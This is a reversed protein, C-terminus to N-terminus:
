LVWNKRGPVSALSRALQELGQLTLEGRQNGKLEAISAGGADRAGSMAMLAQQMDEGAQDQRTPSAINASAPAKAKKDPAVRLLSADATFSQLLELKSGLCFIAVPAGPQMNEVFSVIQKHIVIQDQAETDLSDLLLVNVPDGAGNTVVVDVAIAQANTRILPVPSSSGKFADQAHISLATVCVLIPSIIRFSRLRLASERLHGTYGRLTNAPRHASSQSDPHM